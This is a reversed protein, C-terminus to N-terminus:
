HPVDRLKRVHCVCALDEAIGHGALVQCERDGGCSGDDVVIVEFLQRPYDQQTLARLCRTVHRPRNYTPIIVSFNPTM